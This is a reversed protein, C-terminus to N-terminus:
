GWREAYLQSRTNYYKRKYYDNDVFYYHPPVYVEYENIYNELYPHNGRYDSYVTYHDHNYIVINGNDKVRYRTEVVPIGQQWKRSYEYRPIFDNRYNYSNQARVLEYDQKILQVGNHIEEYSDFTYVDVNANHAFASTALLLFLTLLTLLKKM